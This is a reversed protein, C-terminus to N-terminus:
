IALAALSLGKGLLDEAVLVTSRTRWACSNGITFGDDSARKGTSNTDLLYSLPVENPVLPPFAMIRVSQLRVADLALADGRGDGRGAPLTFESHVCSKCENFLGEGALFASFGGRPGRAPLVVWPSRNRLAKFLEADDGARLLWNLM